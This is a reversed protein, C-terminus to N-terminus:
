ERHGGIRAMAVEGLTPRPGRDRRALRWLGWLMAPADRMLCLKSGPVDRWRIPVAVTRYGLRQALALMEVDFLYGPERCVQALHLGVDRRFMKFGCQTDNIAVGVLTRALWSFLRGLAARLWSRQSPEAPGPLWRSGIAIDAGQELADRFTAEQEIEAAGDADTFLMREGIAAHMGTRVAAGKGRNREHGLVQLQPWNAGLRRVREASGDVSGDDVVIVEYETDYTATLYVRLANLYAPLRDIENYAPIIVSLATYM